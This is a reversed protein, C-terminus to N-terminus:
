GEKEQSLKEQVADVMKKIFDISFQNARDLPSAKAFKVLDATELVEKMEKQLTDPLHEYNVMKLVEQTTSQLANLGFRNHLYTRIIFSMGQHYDAFRKEEILKAELLRELEQLAKEEPTIKKRREQAARVIKMALYGVIAVAIIGLLVFIFNQYDLIYDWFTKSEGMISKIPAVYATDGTIGAPFDVRIMPVEAYFTDPGKDKIYVFPLPPLQYNGTDWFVLVVTQTTIQIGGDGNKIEQDSLAKIEFKKDKWHEIVYPLTINLGEPANLIISGKAEDGILLDTSDFKITAV